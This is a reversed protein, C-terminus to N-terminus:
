LAYKDVQYSGSLGFLNGVSGPYEISPFRRLDALKEYGYGAIFVHEATFM